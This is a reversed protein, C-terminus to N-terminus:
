QLESMPAEPSLGYARRVNAQAAPPLRELVRGDHFGGLSICGTVRPDGAAVRCALYGGFSVGFVGLPAEGVAGEARLAGVVARFAEDFRTMPLAGCLAGQGPGEFTYVSLGRELFGEAFAALEVEKASDLGNIL